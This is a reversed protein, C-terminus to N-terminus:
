ASPSTPVALRKETLLRAYEALVTAFVKQEDFRELAIRRGEGGMRRAEEKNQLLYLIANALASIDGLPILLGNQNHSVVTRCGRVDTAVCPVGMASAEMLSRPFAERHSPLVCIDMLGFMEPMDQRMGTFICADELGYERAITPTIVDVKADDVPGVLLFRVEPVRQRIIQAAALLELIGKDAVLRGVFGVVPANAPIGIEQRRAQLITHDLQQRDFRTVDIGNGLFKMKSPRYVREKENTAMDEPNQSLVVDAFWGGIQAMTMFFRRWHDPMLDHFYFGHLTTLVVPIGALRAAMTAYLDPKATHTHVITFRERRFLRVLHWFARLDALPTLSSSRTFPVALHPIGASELVTVEVGPASIGWVQYGAGQMTKLQNLLLYRLSIDVTCVHAVKVATAPLSLRTM